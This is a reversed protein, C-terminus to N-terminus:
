PVPRPKPDTGPNPERTPKPETGPDPPIPDTPEPAPVDHPEHVPVDTPIPKVTRPKPEGSPMNLPFGPELARAKREPKWGSSQLLLHVIFNGPSACLPLAFCTTLFRIM